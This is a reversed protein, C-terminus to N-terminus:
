AKRKGCFICEIWEILLNVFSIRLFQQFAAMPLPRSLGAIKKETASIGRSLEACIQGRGAREASKQGSGVPCLFHRSLDPSADRPVTGCTGVYIVQIVYFCFNRSLTVTGLSLLSRTGFDRSKNDRPVPVVLDRSLRGDRSSLTM